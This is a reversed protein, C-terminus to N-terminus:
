LINEMGRESGTSKSQFEEAFLALYEKVVQAVILKQLSV